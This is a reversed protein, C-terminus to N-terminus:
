IAVRIPAAAVTAAGDPVSVPASIKAPEVNAPIPLPHSQTWLKYAIAMPDLGLHAWWRPEKVTRHVERHHTRCLPVTFEDSVKRGLARPQAFRLHHADSPQRGCVLAPSPPSLNGITNTVCGARNPRSLTSKLIPAHPRAPSRSYKRSSRPHSSVQPGPAECQSLISNPMKAFRSKSSCRM